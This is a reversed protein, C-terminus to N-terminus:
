RRSSRREDPESVSLRSADRKRSGYV